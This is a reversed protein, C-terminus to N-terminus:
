GLPDGADGATRRLVRLSGVAEVETFAGSALAPLYIDEYPPRGGDATSVYALRDANPSWRPSASSSGTTVLPTQAGSDADVLWISQRGRDTMVDYSVRVYAVARGDPRIQPDRALQLGFLDRGEFAKSPADAPTAFAPLAVFAATFALVTKRM